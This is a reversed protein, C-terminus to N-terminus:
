CRQSPEANGVIRDIDRNYLDTFTDAIANHHLMRYDDNNTDSRFLSIFKVLESRKQRLHVEKVRM